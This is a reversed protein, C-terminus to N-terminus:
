IKKDQKLRIADYNDYLMQLTLNKVEINKFDLTLRTTFMSKKAMYLSVQLIKKRKSTDVSFKISPDTDSIFYGWTHHFGNAVLWKKMAKRTVCNRQRLEVLWETFTKM